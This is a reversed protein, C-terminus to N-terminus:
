ASSAADQYLRHVRVGGLRACREAMADQHLWSSILIDTAGLSVADEPALIPIGWLDGGQRARDDDLFAAIDAGAREFVGGLELTHRGTGYVAVRRGRLRELVAGLRDPADPPVTASGAGPAGTFAAPRRGPWPRAPSAGARDIVAGYRRACCVGSYSSKVLALASERAGHLEDDGARAAREVAAALAGGTETPTTEPTAHAVFGTSGDRVLQGTGSASPTLVPVAGHALAELLSVSFGEYRSALVFLDAGALAREVAGPHDPPFRRVCPRTQCERDIEAAAPGDGLMALEHAIGRRVLADSMAILAGVRKQEHDMRGTYVLRLPRGGLPERRRVADPADVGHPIGFIDPGRLPLLSRLRRTIRESVGVFASLHAAYHTCLLDNYCLDAHHVAVTRLLWPREQSLAAFVGYSDGVLNPMCVVPGGARTALVGLAVRYVPLFDTLDGDCADLALLCRASFVEVGPGIEMEITRQDRPEDHVVLGCARGQRALANVLRVAWTTVGSANFGHPLSILLPTPM